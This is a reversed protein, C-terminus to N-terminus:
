WGATPRSTLTVVVPLPDQRASRWVGFGLAIPAVAAIGICIWGGTRLFDDAHPVQAIAWVSALIFVIPELVDMLVRPSLLKGRWRAVAGEWSPLETDVRRRVYDWLEVRIYEGIKALRYTDAAYLVNM